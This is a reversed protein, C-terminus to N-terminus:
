PYLIPQEEAILPRLKELSYQVNLHKEIEEVLTRNLARDSTPPRLFARWGNSISQLVASWALHLEGSEETGEGSAPVVLTGRAYIHKFFDHVVVHNVRVRSM